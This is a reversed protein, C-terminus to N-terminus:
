ETSALANAKLENGTAESIYLRAARSQMNNLHIAWPFGMHAFLDDWVQIDQENIHHYHPGRNKDAASFWVFDSHEICNSIIKSAFFPEIHEIVETCMVLDFKRNLNIFFKLNQKSIKNQQVGRTILRQYGAETGEVTLFNLANHQFQVTLEGGGAGLELISNFGHGTVETYIQQMYSYLELAQQQNPHGTNTNNFYEPIYLSDLNLYKFAFPCNENFWWNSGFSHYGNKTIDSIFEEQALKYMINSKIQVQDIQM